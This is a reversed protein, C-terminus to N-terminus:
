EAIILKAGLAKLRQRTEEPLLADTIIGDFDRVSAYSTLSYTDFKFSDAVLYIENSIERIAQKLGTETMNGIMVSGEPSIANCGLFAIDAHFARIQNEAFAGRTAWTNLHIEGGISIVSPYDLRLLEAAVNIGNTLFSCHLAPTVHRAISFTTSGSDLYVYNKGEM